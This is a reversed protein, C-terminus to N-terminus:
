REAPPRDPGAPPGIAGIAELYAQEVELVAVVQVDDVELGAETARGLVYALSEDDVVVVADPLEAFATETAVGESAFYELHWLVLHRVDDHSLAAAVEFPLRDAIWEVAEDEDFVSVPPEVSLRGVVRGITVAAIVFVLVATIALIIWAV